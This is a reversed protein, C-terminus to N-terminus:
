RLFTDVSYIYVHKYRVKETDLMLYLCLIHKQTDFVQKM